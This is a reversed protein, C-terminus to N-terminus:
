YIFKKKYFHIFKNKFILKLYFEKGKIPGQNIVINPTIIIPIGYKYNDSKRKEINSERNCTEAKGHEFLFISTAREKRKSICFLLLPTYYFFTGM